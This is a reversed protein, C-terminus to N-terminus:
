AIFIATFLFGAVFTMAFLKADSAITSTPQAVSAATPGSGIEPAKLGFHLQDNLRM